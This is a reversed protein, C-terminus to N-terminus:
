YFSPRLSSPIKLPVPTAKGHNLCRDMVEDITLGRYNSAYVAEFYRSFPMRHGQYRPQPYNIEDQLSVWFILTAVKNANKVSCHQSLNISTGNIYIDELFKVYESYLGKSDNYLLECIETHPIARGGVEMRYDGFKKYGPYHIKLLPFTDDPTFCGSQGSSALTQMHQIGQNYDM